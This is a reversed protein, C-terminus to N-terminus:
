TRCNHAQELIEDDRSCLRSVFLPRNLTRNERAWPLRDLNVLELVTGPPSDSGGFRLIAARFLVPGDGKTLEQAPRQMSM